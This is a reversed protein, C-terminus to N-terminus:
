LVRDYLKLAAPFQRLEAYTLAADMLLAVNRPDLTIAQESYAVTEDWHGQRRTVRSLALLVESDGPFMKRVRDFTTKAAGFDHLLWYQYYGLALLTELSDSALKQAHDLARRAADSRAAPTADGPNIYIQAHARSLRAWAIAFNPDLQVAREYS